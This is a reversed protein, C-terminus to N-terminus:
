RTEANGFFQFNNFFAKQTNPSSWSPDHGGFFTSFMLGAVLVEEDVRYVIDMRNVVLKGDVWVRLVGDNQSINNIIVEQELRQWQGPVFTWAGPSISEGYQASKDPLYAYVEGAGGNRWMYRTSFGMDTDAGGSPANGGYLGPLKGGKAFNFGTAFAVEYALCGSFLPAPSQYLFGAGGVPATTSAPDISGKPYTVALVKTSDHRWVALNQTGWVRYAPLSQLWRDPPTAFELSWILPTRQSCPMVQADAPLSLMVGVMGAGVCITKLKMLM